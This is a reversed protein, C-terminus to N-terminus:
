PVEESPYAEQTTPMNQAEGENEECSKKCTSYKETIEKEFLNIRLFGPATREKELLLSNSWSAPEPGCATM